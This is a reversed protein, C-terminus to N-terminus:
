KQQKTVSNFFYKIHKSIEGKGYRHSVFTNETM